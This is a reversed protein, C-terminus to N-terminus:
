PNTQYHLEPWHGSLIYQGMDGTIHGDTDIRLKGQQRQKRHTAQLTAQLVEKKRIHLALKSAQLRKDGLFWQGNYVMVDGDGQWQALKEASDFQAHINMTAYLRGNLYGGWQKHLWLWRNLHVGGAQVKGQLRLEGQPYTIRVEKGRLSGQNFVAKLRTIRLSQGTLHYSASLDQLTGFPLVMRTFKMSGAMDIPAQLLSHLAQSDMYEGQIHVAHYKDTNLTIDHKDVRWILKPIQWQQRTLKAKGTISQKSLGFNQCTIDLSIPQLDPSLRMDGQLSGHWAEALQLGQARLQDMDVHLEQFQWGQTDYQLRTHANDLQLTTQLSQWQAHQAVAKGDLKFPMGAPKGNGQWRLQAQTADLNFTISKEHQKRELLVQGTVAGNGDFIPLPYVRTLVQSLPLWLSSHKFDLPIHWGHKAWTAQHITLTDTTPSDLMITAQKLQQQRIDLGQIHINGQPIHIPNTQPTTDFALTQWAAHADHTLTQQQWHTDISIDKLTNDQLWARAQPFLKGLATTDLKKSQSHVLCQSTNECGGSIQIDGADKIHLLMDHIKLMTQEGQMVKGRLTIIDQKDQQLALHGFIQWPKDQYAHATLSGSLTQLTSNHQVFSLPIAHLKVRSFGRSIHGHKIHLYGHADIRGDGIHARLEARPNKHKGIDRIDLDTQELTLHQQEFHVESQSINIRKLKLKDHEAWQLWAAKSTDAINIEAQQIYIAQPLATGTLLAALNLDIDLSKADLTFIPSQIHVDRLRVSGMYWPSLSAHKASVQMGASELQTQIRQQIQQSDPLRIAILALATVVGALIWRWSSQRM